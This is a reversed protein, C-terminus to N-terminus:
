DYPRSYEWENLRAEDAPICPQINLKQYVGRIRHALIDDETVWDDDYDTCTSGGLIYIVLDTELTRGTMEEIGLWGPCETNRWWIAVPNDLRVMDRHFLFVEFYEEMRLGNERTSIEHFTYSESMAFCSILIGIRFIPPQQVLMRRWSAEPRIYAELKEPRQLMDVSALLTPNSQFFSPFMKALLPNQVKTSASSSDTPIFFLAKQIPVSEQIIRSWAQCIRQATLLTQTDLQLLILELLEFTSLTIDQANQTAM